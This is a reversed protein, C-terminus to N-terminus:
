KLHMREGTRETLEVTKEVDAEVAKKVVEQQCLRVKEEYAKM